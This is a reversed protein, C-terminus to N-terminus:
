KWAVAITMSEGPQLPQTSVYSLENDSEERAYFYQRKEGSKGTYGTFNIIHSKAPLHISAELKIIPLSWDNGTLNWNFQEINKTMNVASAAHYQITYTDIGGVSNSMHITVANPATQQYSAPKDNVLVRSIKYSVDHTTGSSDAYFSPLKRTMDHLASRAGTYVTINETVDISADSNVVIDSDFYLIKGQAFVVPTFVFAAVIITAAILTRGTRM